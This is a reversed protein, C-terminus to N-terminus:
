QQRVRYFRQAFQGAKPDEFDLVGATSTNTYITQWDTLNTSAELISIQGPVRLAQCRFIGNSSFALASLSVPLAQPTSLNLQVHGQAWGGEVAIHYTTGSVASFSLSACSGGAAAGFFSLNSISTGTFVKLYAGAFSGCTDITVPGSVPATWSWWISSRGNSEGSEGTSWLNSGEVTINTRLNPLTIRQAFDDNAPRPVAVWIRNSTVTQAGLNDVVRVGLPYNGTSGSSWNLNWPSNTRTGVPVSWGYGPGTHIEYFDLRQITGDPDLPIASVPINLATAFVSGDAPSTLEVQPPRTIALGVESVGASGGDVCMHYTAGATADWEAQRCYRFQGNILASHSTESFACLSLGSISTGTYVGVTVINTASAVAAYRGDSPATWSWWVTRSSSYYGIASPEGPEKGAALIPGQTAVPSGQLIIRNAFDDNPPRGVTVESNMTASAGLDDVVRTQVTYRGIPPNTWTGSWPPNTSEAVLPGFRLSYHVSAVNGDADSAQAGFVINAGTPFDSGNTPSVSHIAPPATIALEYPVQDPHQVGVIIEYETGATANFVVQAAQCILGNRVIRYPTRGDWGTAPELGDAISGTFVDVLPYAPDAVIVVAAYQGNSPATWAWWVTANCIGGGVLTPDGLERTALVNNGNTLVPLGSVQIRNVFNDNVPASRAVSTFLTLACGLAVFCM